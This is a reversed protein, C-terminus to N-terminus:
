GGAVTSLEALRELAPVVEAPTPMRLLGARMAATRDRYSPEGLVAEIADRIAVADAQANPDDVVAGIGTARVREGTLALAPHRLGIVLQPVGTAVATLLTGAGGHHLVAACNPLVAGLPTPEVIRVGPPVRGLRDRLRSNLLLVAETDPSERLAALVADLLSTGQNEMLQGGFIGLCICIRRSTTREDLVPPPGGGGNYPVFRIPQAPAALPSQLGPPCPDLSLAPVPLGDSVGLSVCLAALAEQAIPLSRSTLTDPGWRHAVVPRGLVGGLIHACLEMPDTLILDPCWQRGISVYPDIVAGIRTRWRQGLEEPGSPGGVMPAAPDAGIVFTHLGAAAGATTVGPGGVVLVDHGAARAAWALPVIPLLHSPALATIMIRMRCWVRV